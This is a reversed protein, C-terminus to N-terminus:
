STVQAPDVTGNADVQSEAVGPLYFRGRGGRGGTAGRKHILFASNQPIVAGAGAGAGSLSSVGIVPPDLASEGTARLTVETQALQVQTQMVPLYNDIWAQALQSALVNADTTLAPACWIGYTVAMPQADGTWRLSHVVHAYGPPIVLAM